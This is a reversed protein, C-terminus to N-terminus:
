LAIFFVTNWKVFRTDADHLAGYLTVAMARARYSKTQSSRLVFSRDGKACYAFIAIFYPSKAIGITPLRHREVFFKRARVFLNTDVVHAKVVFACALFKKV